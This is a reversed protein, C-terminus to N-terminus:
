RERLAFFLGTYVISLALWSWLIGSALERKPWVGFDPPAFLPAYSTINTHNPSGTLDWPAVLTSLVFLGLAVFTLTRQRNNMFSNELRGINDEGSVPYYQTRACRRQQNQLFSDASANELRAAV